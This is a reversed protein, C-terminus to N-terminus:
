RDRDLPLVGSVDDNFKSFNNELQAIRDNLKKVRNETVQTCVFTILAVIIASLGWDIM